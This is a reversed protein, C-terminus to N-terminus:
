DPRMAEDSLMQVGMFRVSDFLPSRTYTQGALLQSKLSVIDRQAYTNQSTFSSSRNTGSTYYSNNRLRWPGINVGLRLDASLHNTASMVKSQDRRVNVGYNVFAATQGEDWLSPDVYGRKSPSLYIQPISLLLRLQDSEYVVTADPVIEPLRLCTSEASVPAPLKSLDIGIQELMEQDFCPENEDTRPNRKFTIDRRGTRQQNVYLDVRQVGEAVNSSSLLTRLDA